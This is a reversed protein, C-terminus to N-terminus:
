QVMLNHEITAKILASAQLVLTFPLKGQWVSCVIGNMGIQYITKKRSRVSGRESARQRAIRAAKVMKVSKLIFIM